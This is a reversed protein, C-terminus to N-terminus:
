HVQAIHNISQNFKAFYLLLRYFDVESKETSIRQEYTSTSVICMSFVLLNTKVKSIVRSSSSSILLPSMCSAAAATRYHLPLFQEVLLFLSYVLVTACDLRGCKCLDAGLFPRWIIAAAFKRHLFFGIVAGPSTGHCVARSALDSCRSPGTVSIVFPVDSLSQM